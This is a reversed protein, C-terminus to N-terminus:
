QRVFLLPYNQERVKPKGPLNSGICKEKRDSPPAMEREWCPPSYSCLCTCGVFSPLIPLYEEGNVDNSHQISTVSNVEVLKKNVPRVPRLSHIRLTINKVTCEAHDKASDLLPVQVRIPRRIHDCARDSGFWM